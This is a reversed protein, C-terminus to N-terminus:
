SRRRAVPSSRRDTRGRHCTVECDIPRIEETGRGDPRRKDIAIKKRVIDKYIAEAPAERVAQDALGEAAAEGEAPPSGVPFPLQVEDLIRSFLIDRKRSKLEKSDQEADTLERLGSEFQERM